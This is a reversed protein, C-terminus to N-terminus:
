ETPGKVDLLAHWKRLDAVFADPQELAAFHGGHEHTNNFFM